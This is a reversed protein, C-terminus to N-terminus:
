KTAAVTRASRIGPSNDEVAHLPSAQLIKYARYEISLTAKGGLRISSESRNEEPLWFDNVKMYKHKIETKKIWFSPNKAPEAEIRVVAFDKADVWIQGRYLYKNKTKPLLNLVYRGGDVSTEYAALGFDYNARTLASQSQNDGKAAEKEAELLKKFVRDVVFKSGTQSVVSFEKSDPARYSVKVVMEADRDSPFGRYQMRYVREGEFQGLAAARQANRTELNIVVQELQLPSTEVRPSEAGAQAPALVSAGLLSLALFEAPIRCIKDSASM